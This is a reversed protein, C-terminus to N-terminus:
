ERMLELSLRVGLFEAVKGHTKLGVGVDFNQMLDFDLTYFQFWCSHTPHGRLLYIGGKQSFTFRGLLFSHGGTLSLRSKGGLDSTDLSNDVEGMIGASWANIRAFQSLYECSVGLLSVKTRSDEPEKLGGTFSILIEREGEGPNFPDPQEPVPVPREDLKRQIGLGLTTYNIGLNPQSIGGNSIHQFMGSFLVSWRDNLPCNLSLGIMLPFALHTSYTLNYPNSAEDYPHDLYSIGLGAKLSIDTGFPSFLAPEVFFLASFAHGLSTNGLNWYNLSAGISPYCKCLAYAENSVFKWSFDLGIGFPKTGKFHEIKSSHIGIQGGYIYGSLYHLPRTARKQQGKVISSLCEIFMLFFLLQYRMQMLRSLEYIKKIHHGFM